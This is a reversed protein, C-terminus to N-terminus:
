VPGIAVSWAPCSSATALYYDGAEMGYLWSEGAGNGLIAPPNVTAV